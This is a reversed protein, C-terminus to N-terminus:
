RYIHMYIRHSQNHLFEYNIDSLHPSPLVSPERPPKEKNLPPKATASGARASISKHKTKTNSISGEAPKWNTNINESSGSKCSFHLFLILTLLSQCWVAPFTVLSLYYIQLIAKVPSFSIHYYKWESRVVVFMEGGILYNLGLQWSYRSYLARSLRFKRHWVLLIDCEGKGSM